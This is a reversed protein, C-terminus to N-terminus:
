AYELFANEVTRYHYRPVDFTDVVCLFNELDQTNIEVDDTDITRM